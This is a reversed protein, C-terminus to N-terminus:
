IEEISFFTNARVALEKRDSKKKFIIIEDELIAESIGKCIDDITTEPRTIIINEEYLESGVMFSVQYEKM